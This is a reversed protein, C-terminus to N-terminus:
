GTMKLRAFQSTRTEEQPVGALWAALRSLNM